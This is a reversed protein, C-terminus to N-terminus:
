TLGIDGRREAEMLQARREDQTMENVSKEGGGKLTTASSGGAPSEKPAQIVPPTYKGEQTMVLITAEDVSLGLASKERIKDQFEGAGQYKSAVTSFNKYFEADKLAAQKEAEAKEAAAKAVDREEATSRVKGSLDKIRKEVKNNTEEQTTSDGLDLEDLEDAMYGKM